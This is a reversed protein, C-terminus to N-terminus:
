DGKWARGTARSLTPGRIGLDVVGCRAGRLPAPERAPQRIAVKAVGIQSSLHAFPWPFSLCRSLDCLQRHALCGLPTPLPNAQVAPPLIAVSLSCPTTANLIRTRRVLKGSGGGGGGGATNASGALNTVRRSVPPPYRTKPPRAHRRRKTELAQRQPEGEGRGGGSLPRENSSTEPTHTHTHWLLSVPYAAVRLSTDPRILVSLFHFCRSATARRKRLFLSTGLLNVVCTRGVSARNVGEPGSGPVELRAVATPSLRRM